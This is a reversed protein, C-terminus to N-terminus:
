INVTINQLIDALAKARRTTAPEGETEKYSRTIYRAREVCLEPTLSLLREKMKLTDAM